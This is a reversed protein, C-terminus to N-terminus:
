LHYPLNEVMAMYGLWVLIIVVIGITIGWPLYKGYDYIWQYPIQKKNLRRM